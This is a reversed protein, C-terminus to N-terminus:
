MMCGIGTLLDDAKKQQEATLAAYLNALSPRIEKLVALRSEMAAVRADLREVPSKAEAVSKMGQWMGQMSELNSKVADAYADWVAKQADTIGLEAKLFAIRGEAFASAHGDAALGMMPCGGWPGPGRLGGPGGGMMGSRYMGPGYGERMGMQAEAPVVMAIPGLAIGITMCAGLLIKASM